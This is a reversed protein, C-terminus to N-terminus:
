DSVIVEVRDDHLQAVAEELWRKRAQFEAENEDELPYLDLFIDAGACEPCEYYLFLVGQLGLLRRDREMGQSTEKVLDQSTFEKGCHTCARRM